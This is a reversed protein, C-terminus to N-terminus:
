YMFVTSAPAAFDSGTARFTGRKDSRFTRSLHQVNIDLVTLTTLVVTRVAGGVVKIIVLSVVFAGLPAIQM